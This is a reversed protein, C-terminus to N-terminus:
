CLISFYNIRNIKRDLWVFAEEMNNFSRVRGNIIDQKAKKISQQVNEQRYIDYSMQLDLLEQYIKYRYM